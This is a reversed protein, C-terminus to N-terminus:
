SLKVHASPGGMRCFLTLVIVKYSSWINDPNFHHAPPVVKGRIEYLNHFAYGIYQALPDVRFYANVM